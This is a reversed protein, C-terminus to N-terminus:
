DVDDALGPLLHGARSVLSRPRQVKRGGGAGDDLLRQRFRLAPGHVRAVNPRQACWLGFPILLGSFWTFLDPWLLALVSALLVWAPFAATLFALM